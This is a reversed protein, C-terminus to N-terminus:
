SLGQLPFTLARKGACIRAQLGVPRDSCSLEVRPCPQARKLKLPFEPVLDGPFAFAAAYSTSIQVGM